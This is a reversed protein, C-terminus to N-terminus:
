SIRSLAASNETHPEAVHKRKAIGTEGRKRNAISRTRNQRTKGKANTGNESAASTRVQCTDTGGTRSGACLMNSNVLGGYADSSNCVSSPIIEVQAEKLVSSTKGEIFSLM